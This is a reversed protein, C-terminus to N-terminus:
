NKKQKNLVTINSDPLWYDLQQNSTGFPTKKNKNNQFM